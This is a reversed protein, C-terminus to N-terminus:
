SFGLRSWMAQLTPSSSRDSNGTDSDRQELQQSPEPTSRGENAAAAAEREAKRAARRAKKRAKNQWLRDEEEIEQLVDKWEQEQREDGTGLMREVDVDEGRQLREIVEKLAAIKTDAMRSFMTWENKLVILNISQSGILM